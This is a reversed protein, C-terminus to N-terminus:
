TTRRKAMPQGNQSKLYTNRYKNVTRRSIHIGKEELLSAIRADSLEKGNPVAELLMKIRNVIEDRSHETNGGSTFLSRFPFVRGRFEIYKNGVTRSVTSLSLHTDNALSTLTLPHMASPSGTLLYESQRNVAREAIRLLTNARERLAYIFSRAYLLNDHVYKRHEEKEAKLYEIYQSNISPIMPQNILSVKLKDQEEIEVRIDPIIYHATEYDYQLGPRPQLSRILSCARDVEEKSYGDLQLKGEAFEELHDTVIKIAVPNLIPQAELQLRLCESLSRAGVGYPELAQVATLAEQFRAPTTRIARLMEKTDDRLYGNKDLSNIIFKCIRLLEPDHMSCSLQMMLHEALSTRCPAAIETIDCGEIISSHPVFDVLPNSTIFADITERLAEANQELINVSQVVLAVPVAEIKPTVWVDIHM